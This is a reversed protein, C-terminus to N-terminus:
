GKPKLNSGKRRPRTPSDQQRSITKELYGWCGTRLQIVLLRLHMESSTFAMNLVPQNSSLQDAGSLVWFFRLTALDVSPSFAASLRVGQGVKEDVINKLGVRCDKSEQGLCKDLSICGSKPVKFQGLVPQIQIVEVGEQTYIWHQALERDNQLLGFHIELRFTHCVYREITFQGDREPVYKLLFTDDGLKATLRANLERFVAQMIVEFRTSKVINNPPPPFHRTFTDRLDEQFLIQSNEDLIELNAGETFNYRFSSTGEPEPLWLLYACREALGNCPKDCPPPPCTHTFPQSVPPCKTGDDVVVNVPQQGSPFPGARLVFTNPSVMTASQPVRGNVSFPPQGYEVLIELSYENRAENCVPNSLAVKMQPPVVVLMEASEKPPVQSDRVKMQHNGVSLQIHGVFARPPQTDILLEFPPLGETVVLTLPAENGSTCGMEFALVPKPLPCAYNFTQSVSPCGSSDGVVIDQAAGSPFPGATLLFGSGSPNATKPPHGNVTFPPKGNEVLIEVDYASGTENCIPNLVTIKLRAGIVVEMELSEGGQSDKLTLKHTGVSMLVPNVLAQYGLDGIRLEYPALGHLIKITVPAKNDVNTCGPEATFSPKPPPLVFQIPPCDSCCRDPLFFDAIVLGEPIQFGPTPFVVSGVLVRDVFKDLEDKAMYVGLRSFEIELKEVVETKARIMVPLEEGEKGVTAPFPKESTAIERIIATLDETRNALVNAATTTATAATTTTTTTTTTNTGTSKGTGPTETFVLIYTGGRPAGAGHEIEPHKEVYESFYLLSEVAKKRKALEAALEKVREHACSDLLSELEAVTKDRDKPSLYTYNEPLSKVKDLYVQGVTLIAEYKHQFALADIDEIGDPVADTFDYIATFLDIPYGVIVQYDELKLATIAPDTRIIETMGVRVDNITNPGAQNLVQTFVNGITDETNNTYNLLNQRTGTIRLRNASIEIPDGAPLATAQSGTDTPPPAAARASPVRPAVASFATFKLKKYDYSTWYKIKKSFLCSLEQVWIKYIVNLDDCVCRPPRPDNRVALNSANLAIVDLPLRRTRIATLLDEVVPRWLKGIAGEIRYFNYPEQDYELPKKIFNHVAYQDAHYALNQNARGYRTKESNWREYLPPTGNKLLYYFPIAKQSLPGGYRSPTIRVPQLAAVGSGQPLAVFNRVMLVLRQFLDRVEEWLRSQALQAAAPRFYHRFVKRGARDAGYVEGLMLHRPHLGEPPCCMAMLELGKWRLEDYAQMVDDLFDYYYQTYIVNIGAAHAVYSAQIGTLLGIFPDNPEISRVLPLFAAYAKVLAKEVHQFLSTSASEPFDELLIRQYAAFIEQANDVSTNPVDFRRLRLDTLDLRATISAALDTTTQNLPLGEAKLIIKTLDDKRILLKRLTVTIEGGKDDCSNPSCNKLDQQLCEIFLLVVKDRLFNPGLPLGDPAGVALLEWLAYQQRPNTTLDFFPPYDIEPPSVYEKYKTLTLSETITTTPDDPIVALYGQSTVGCGKSITISTADAAVTVELGCVVGIGILNTRTLRNQEDLYQFLDNLHHNTLVQNPEFVPYIRENPIM